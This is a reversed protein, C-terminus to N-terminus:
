QAPLGFLGQWGNENENYRLVATFKPLDTTRDVTGFVKSNPPVLYRRSDMTDRPNKLWPSVNGVFGIGPENDVPGAWNGDLNTSIQGTSGWPVGPDHVWEYEFEWLPDQGNEQATSGDSVQAIRRPRFVWDRGSFKHINGTEDYTNAIFGPDSNVSSNNLSFPEASRVTLRMRNVEVSQEGFVWAVAVTTDEGNMGTVQREESSAELVPVTAREFGVEWSISGPSNIPAFARVTDSSALQVTRYRVMLVSRGEQARNDISFSDARPAFFGRQPEDSPGIQSPSIDGINPVVYNNTQAGRFRSPDYDRAPIVSFQRTYSWGSAQFETRSPAIPRIATNDVLDGEPSTTIVEYGAPLNAPLQTM